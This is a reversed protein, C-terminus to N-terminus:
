LKHEWAIELDVMFNPLKKVKLSKVKSSLM